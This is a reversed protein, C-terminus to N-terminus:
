NTYKAAADLLINFAELRRTKRAVETERENGELSQAWKLRQIEKDRQVEILPILNRILLPDFYSDISYGNDKQVLMLRVADLPVLNGDEWLMGWFTFDQYCTNKRNCQIFTACLENLRKDPFRLGVILLRNIKSRYCPYTFLYTRFKELESSSLRYADKNRVTLYSNLKNRLADLFVQMEGEVISRTSSLRREANENTSKALPNKLGMIKRTEKNIWKNSLHNFAEQSIEGQVKWKHLLDLKEQLNLGKLALNQATTLNTSGRM